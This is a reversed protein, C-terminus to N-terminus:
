LLLHGELQGRPERGPLSDVLDRVIEGLSVQILNMSVISATDTHALTHSILHASRMCLSCLLRFLLPFVTSALFIDGEDVWGQEWFPFRYLNGFESTTQKRRRGTSRVSQFGLLPVWLVM